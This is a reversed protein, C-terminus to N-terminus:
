TRSVATSAVRRVREGLWAERLPDFTICGDCHGVRRALEEREANAQLLTYRTRRARLPPELAV